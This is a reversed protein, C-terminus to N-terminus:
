DDAGDEYIVPLEPLELDKETDIYEREGAEKIGGVIIMMQLEDEELGDFETIIVPDPEADQAVAPSSMMAAAAIAAGVTSAIPLKYSVCIDEKCGALFVDQETQTMASLDYVTRKCMRCQDGDMYASLNAKVPCPSSIKPFKAM